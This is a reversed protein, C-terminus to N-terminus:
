TLVKLAPSFIARRCRASEGMPREQDSPESFDSLAPDTSAWCYPADIHFKVPYCWM